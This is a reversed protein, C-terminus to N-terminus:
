AKAGKKRNRRAWAALEAAKIYEFKDDDWGHAAPHLIVDGEVELKRVTHGQRMLELVKPHNFWQPAVLWVLPQNTLGKAM